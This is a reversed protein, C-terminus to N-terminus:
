VTRVAATAASAGGKRGTCVERHRRGGAGKGEVERTAEKGGGGM